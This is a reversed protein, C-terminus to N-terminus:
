GVWTGIYTPPVSCGPEREQFVLERVEVLGPPARVRGERQPMALHSALQSAPQSNSARSERSKTDEEGQSICHSVPKPTEGMSTGRLFEGAAFIAAEIEGVKPHNTTTTTVM